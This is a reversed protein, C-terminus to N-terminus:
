NSINVNKNNIMVYGEKKANQLMIEVKENASIGGIGKEKKKADELKGSQKLQSDKEVPQEKEKKSDFNFAEDITKRAKQMASQEQYLKVNSDNEFAERTLNQIDLTSESIFDDASLIDKDYIQFTISPDKLPLKLHYVM